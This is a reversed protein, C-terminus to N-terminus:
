EFTEPTNRSGRMSQASIDADSDIWRQHWGHFELAIAKEKVRQQGQRNKALSCGVIKRGGLDRVPWLFAVVDADQEIAGSDRLDSLMPEPTGRKEVDRSLQSLLLVSIRLQMALAKIGRSIEELETNRNPRGGNSAGSCLQLYDVILVKLGQKRRGMAAARIQRLTLAGRDHVWLPRAAISEVAETIGGWDRDSPNSRQLRGYDVSGVNSIMRGMCEDRDMEQSLLLVGDGAEARHLGIQMSLASKGVSPRAAIVYVRGPQLGGNLAEDLDQLGTSAALPVNGAIRDNLRDLWQVALREAAVPEDAREGAQLADLRLGIAEVMEQPDQEGKYATAIGEDMTAILVRQMAKRRVLEAHNRANRISVVCQLLANLYPLDITNGGVKSAQLRDHVTIIDATRNAIVLSEIAGFIVRHEHRYFDDARVTDGVLDWAANDLLLAGLVSQEAEINSPPQRLTAVETSAAAMREAETVANM